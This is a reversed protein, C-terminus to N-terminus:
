LNKAADNLIMALRIGAQALREEVVAAAKEHYTAGVLFHKNLMRQGINNDDACSNVPVDPEAAVPKGLGRYATNMARQHGEWAWNELQMGGQQWGAFASAFERDLKDAFEVAGAGQMDRELIETDWIHHLNPVYSNNRERPTRSFYKVPVCNGGRDSNTIAHLPQHLDGVFHIIFRLAVARKSAPASKDKLISLQEAIAQTVCGGAGCFNKVQPASTVDFPVDIFHWPAEKLREDLTRYGPIRAM